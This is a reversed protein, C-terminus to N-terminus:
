RVSGRQLRMDISAISFHEPLLSLDRLRGNGMLYCARRLVLGM